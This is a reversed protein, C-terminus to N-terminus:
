CNIENTGGRKMELIQTEQMQAEILDLKNQINEFESQTNVESKLLKTKQAKLNSLKNIKM